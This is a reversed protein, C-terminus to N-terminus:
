HKGYMSCSSIKDHGIINIECFNVQNCKSIENTLEGCDDIIVYYIIYNDFKRNNIYEKISKDNLLMDHEDHSFTIVYVYQSWFKYKKTKVIFNTYPKLEIYRDIHKCNYWFYNEEYCIFMEDYYYHETYYRYTKNLERIYKHNTFDDDLFVDLYYKHGPFAVSSGYIGDINKSNNCQIVRYKFGNNYNKVHSMHTCCYYITQSASVSCCISIKEIVKLYKEVEYNNDIVVRLFRNKRYAFTDTMTGQFKDITLPCMVDRVDYTPNDLGYEM